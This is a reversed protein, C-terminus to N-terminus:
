KLVFIFQKFTIREKNPNGGKNTIPTHQSEKKVQSHKTITIIDLTTLTHDDPKWREESMRKLKKQIHHGLTEGM